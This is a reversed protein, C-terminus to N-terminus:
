LGTWYCDPMNTGPTGAGGHNQFDAFVSVGGGLSRTIKAELQQSSNSGQEGTTYGIAYTTDADISGSFAVSTATSDTTEDTSAYGVTATGGGLAMSVSGGSSTESSTGTINAYGLNVSMAGVPLTVSIGTGTDGASTSASNVHANDYDAMYSLSVSAGGVATSAVFGYGETSAVGTAIGTNSYGGEDVHASAVFGVEGAGAGSLAMEGMKLSFGDVGFTVSDLGTVGKTNSGDNSDLSVGGSASVTMGGATTTSMAFSVGGGTMFETTTASGNIITAGYSGSASVDAKAATSFGLGALVASALYAVCIKRRAVDVKLQVRGCPAGALVSV